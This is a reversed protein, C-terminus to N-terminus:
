EDRLSVVPNLNATRITQLSITIWAIVLALLGSLAFYWWELDIRYAFNNLWERAMFYGIPLALGIAALVMRTFDRSLLLVINWKSSGLIKRIGIEKTRREASFAALGFLGLCSILVAIGAFIQSLTAVKSETKYLKQYAQDLYQYDFALGQNWSEYLGKIQSLTAQENGAKLKVMISSGEPSLRLFCPQVTKYLSEYHFDKVVGVVEAPKRWLKIRQGIPNGKLQMLKVASENLILQTRNTDAPFQKSFDRGAVLKMGVTKVYDYDVQQNAVSTKGQIGKWEIASTSGFRGLLSGYM